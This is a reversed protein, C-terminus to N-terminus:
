NQTGRADARQGPERDPGAQAELSASAEEAIARLAAAVEARMPYPRYNAATVSRGTLSRYLVCASLYTGEMTPHAGDRRRLAVRPLRRAATMFARGVPAMGTDFHNALNRYVEEVRQSMEAPDRLTLHLHYLPSRRSHAWTAYLITKAGSRDIQDKFRGVYRELEQARDVADLSHGQLVIHTFHGGRIRALAQRHQWHRRLTAGSETEREVTVTPGNPVSSALREVIRPLNNFRTYSNGIFLVAIPAGESPADHAATRASDDTATERPSPAEVARASDPTRSRDGQDHGDSGISSPGAVASPPNRGGAPQARLAAGQNADDTAGNGDTPQGAAGDACTHPVGDAAYRAASAAETVIPTGGHGPGGARTAQHPTASAIPNCALSCAWFFTASSVLNTASDFSM